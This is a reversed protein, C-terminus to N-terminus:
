AASPRLACTSHHPVSRAAKNRRRLMHTAILGLTGLGMLLLSSPEPVANAPFAVGLFLGNPNTAFVSGAGDPTFREILTLENITVYLNGVSDFALGTPGSTEGPGFNAFVSGVGGPTFKEITNDGSLDGTGPNNAVYLNGAADFALGYPHSVGTSAFLSGVGGPTFKEITNSINNAVYLNGAADFALGLPGSVGTSAFVSFVGGPTIKEISGLGNRVYVNDASDIALGYPTVGSAFVSGVGGPTFKEITGNGNNAAYLNGGSDFALGYPSNLGTRAFTTPTPPSATTDYTVIMSNNGQSVYLTDAQALTGTSLISLSVALVSARGCQQKRM